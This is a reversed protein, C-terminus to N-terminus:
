KKFHKSHLVTGTNLDSFFQSGFRKIVDLQSLDSTEKTRKFQIKDMTLVKGKKVDQSLVATKKMPGYISYEEEGQNLKILGDGRCNNLVYLKEAIDNFMEISVASNWDLREEGYVNTVHKEVYDVGLAAGMTTILINNPEDCSTHDAYGYNFEPFLRMIRQMKRFNVDEYRTPFNQFGFMLIINENQVKEIANEIEYLTSGGIGLVVSTTASINNKLADLLYSDNLCASHIEVYEPNFTGGFEIAKADNYLLMLEKNNNMVYSFLISWQKESFLKTKLSDYLPHTHDMYEDFDLTVHMKLVDLKSKNLIENVLKDMFPFDGDHHWATEAILKIESTV